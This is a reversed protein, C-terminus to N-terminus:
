IEKFQPNARCTFTQNETTTSVGNGRQCSLTTKGVPVLLGNIPDPQVNPILTSNGNTILSCSITSTASESGTVWFFPCQNHQASAYSPRLSASQIIRGTDVDPCDIGPTCNNVVQCTTSSTSNTVSDCVTTTTTTTTGTTGDVCAVSSVWTNIIPTPDACTTTPTSTGSICTGTAECGPEQVIYPQYATRTITFNGRRTAGEVATATVSTTFSAVYRGPTTPARFTYSVDRTNRQQAESLILRGRKNVTRVIRRFSGISTYPTTNGNGDSFRVFATTDRNFCNTFWTKGIIKLESGPAYTADEVPSNIFMSINTLTAGEADGSPLSMTFGFVTSASFGILAVFLTAIFAKKSFRFLLIAVIIVILLLIIVPIALDGYQQMLSDFRSVKEPVILAQGADSLREKYTAIEKEGDFVAVSVFLNEADKEAVMPIALKFEGAGVTGVAESLAVVAGVEDTVETVIRLDRAKTNSNYYIDVAEGTISVDVDFNQGKKVSSVSGVVSQIIASSGKIVYRFRLEENRVVGDSGVLEILGEYVGPTYDFVPIDFSISTANKGAKIVSPSLNFQNKLFGSTINREFVSVTPTVKIDNANPSLFSLVVRAGTPYQDKYIPVGMQLDFKKYDKKDKVVPEIYASNTILLPSGGRVSFENSSNDGMPQGGPLETDIRIRINDGDVNVPIKYSFPVTMKERAGLSLKVAPRTDFVIGPNGAEDFYDGISIIYLFSGASVESGNYVDFSGKIIEGVKYGGGNVDPVTVKTVYVQPSNQIQGAFAEQQAFSTQAFLVSLCFAAVLMVSYKYLKNFPM